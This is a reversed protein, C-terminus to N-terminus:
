EPPAPYTVELPYGPAEQTQRVAHKWSTWASKMSVDIVDSSYKMLMDDATRYLYAREISRLADDWEGGYPMIGQQILQYEMETMFWEDYVWGSFTEGTVPDTESFPQVNFRVYVGGYNHEITPVKIQGGHVNHRLQM